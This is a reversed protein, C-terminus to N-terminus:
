STIPDSDALEIEIDNRQQELEDVVRQFEDDDDVGVLIDDDEVRFLTAPEDEAAGAPVVVVYQRDDVEVHELVTFTHEHGEEDSVTIVQHGNGLEETVRVEGCTAEIV